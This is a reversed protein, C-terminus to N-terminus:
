AFKFGALHKALNEGLKIQKEFDSLPDQKVDLNWKGQYLQQGSIHFETGTGHRKGDRWSGDYCRRGNQYYLVGYDDPFGKKFYGEYILHGQNDYWIGKGHHLSQGSDKFYEFEGDYKLSGHPVDSIMEGYYEKGKGSMYDEFFYGRSIIRGLKNYLKGKGHKLGKKFHGKYAQGCQENYLVGKGEFLNEKFDGEYLVFGNKHYLIGYSGDYLGNKFPGEYMIAGNEFHFTGFDTHYKGGKFEGDFKINFNDYREIGDGEPLNSSKCWFRQFKVKGDPTYEIRKNFVRTPETDKKIEGNKFITDFCSMGDYTYTRGLGHFIGYEFNGKYITMGDEKYLVGKGHFVGKLFFGRYQLVNNEFYKKGYGEYLGNAFWGDFKMIGSDYFEIGLGNAKNSIVKGKHAHMRINSLGEKKYRRANELQDLNLQVENQSM